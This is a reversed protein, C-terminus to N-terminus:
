KMFLTVEYIYKTMLLSLLKLDVLFIIFLTAIPFKKIDDVTEGNIKSSCM